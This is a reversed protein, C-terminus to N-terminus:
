YPRCINSHLLLKTLNNDDFCFLLKWLFRPSFFLHRNDVSITTPIGFKYQADQCVRVRDLQHFRSGLNGRGIQLFPGNSRPYIQKRRGCSSQLSRYCGDGMRSPGLVNEQICLNWLSAYISVTSVSVSPMLVRFRYLRHALLVGNKETANPTKPQNPSCRLNWFAGWECTSTNRIRYNM